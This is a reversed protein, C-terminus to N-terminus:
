TGAYRVARTCRCRANNRAGGSPDGPYLMRTGDGLTFPQGIQPRQAMLDATRHWQRADATDPGPVWEGELEDQEVDGNEIAQRFLEDSGQHVVKLAETRAINEARYAIVNRRYREVAADIDEPDMAEGRRQAAAITRDSRGDSLARGLANAYDQNELSSRYSTVWDFQDPTLGISDKIDRAMDRPNVGRAVGDAIVRHVVERQEQSLGTVLEYQNQQAWAVARTNAGSFRVVADAEDSLWAAERQGAETYAAHVDAAFKGGADAAAQEVAHLVGAYDGRALLVDVQELADHDRLWEVIDVWSSGLHREVLALLEEM